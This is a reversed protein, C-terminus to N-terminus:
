MLLRCLSKTMECPNERLLGMRFQRPWIQSIGHFWVVPTCRADLNIFSASTIYRSALLVSAINVSINCTHNCNYISNIKNLLIDSYLSLKNFFLYVENIRSILSKPYDSYGIKISCVWMSCYKFTSVNRKHHLSLFIGPCLIIRRTWSHDRGLLLVHSRLICFNLSVCLISSSINISLGLLVTHMEATRSINVSLCCLTTDSTSSCHYYQFHFYTLFM